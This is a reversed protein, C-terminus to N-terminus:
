LKIKSPNDGIIDIKLGLISGIKDKFPHLKFGKCPFILIDWDSGEHWYGKVRSGTAYVEREGLEGIILSKIKQWTEKNELEDYTKSEPRIIREIGGKIM